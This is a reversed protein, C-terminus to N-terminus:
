AGGRGGAGSATLCERAYAAGDEGRAERRVAEDQQEPALLSWRLLGVQDYALSVRVKQTAAWEASSMGTWEGAIQGM